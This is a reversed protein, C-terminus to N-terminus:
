KRAAKLIKAAFNEEEEAEADYEFGVNDLEENFDEYKDENTLYKFAAYAGGFVAGAVALLKILTKIKSKRKPIPEYYNKM